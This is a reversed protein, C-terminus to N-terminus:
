RLHALEPRRAEAAALREARARFSLAAATVAVALQPGDYGYYTFSVVAVVLSANIWLDGPGEAARGAWWAALFWVVFLALAIFGYSYMLNWIQGQTGISVDVTQSATPAGHGFLPSQVAGDFSERYIETRGTNTQSYQLRQELSAVFGTALAVAYLVTASAVLGVLPVVRGRAALRIAVYVIAVGFGVYMGRNLSQLAPVIGLLLVLAILNRTLGRPVRALAALALPVLLAMNCGWSNTYAFPASPRFFARPSGYPQQVEAFAPHVLSYAFANRRISPPLVREAITTISGHPLLVGLYGGFVVFALFFSLLVLIRRTDLSRRANYLYLFLVACGAMNGFRVIYGTLKNFDLQVASVITWIVFLLWLAFAPPFEFRGRQALLLLMPVASFAVAFAGLGLVWWVPFGVFLLYVPWAPLSASAATDPRPTAM